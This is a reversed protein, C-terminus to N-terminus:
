KARRRRLLFYGLAFSLIGGLLMGFLYKTYFEEM